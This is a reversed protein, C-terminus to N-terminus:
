ISVQEIAANMGRASAISDVRLWLDPEGMYFCLRPYNAFSFSVSGTFGGLGL